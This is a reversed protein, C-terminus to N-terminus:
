SELKRIRNNKADIAFRGRKEGISAYELIRKATLGTSYELEAILKDLPIDAKDKDAYLLAVITENVKAIREKRVEVGDNRAM